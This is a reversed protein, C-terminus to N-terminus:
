RRRVFPKAPNGFVTIGAPVNKTVVSGAGIIANDGINLGPLITCRAGIWVHNGVTVEGCVTTDASTDVADGLKVNHAVHCNPGINCHKGVKAHAMVIARVHILTGHGIEADRAIWSTHHVITVAKLGEKELLDAKQLKITGNRGTITIFFGLKEKCKEGQKLWERFEEIGRCVPIDPFPPTLDPTDDIIAEIKSGFYEITERLMIALGKGGWLIIGPPLHNVGKKIM